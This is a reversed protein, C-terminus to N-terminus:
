RRYAIGVGLASWGPFHPNSDADVDQAPLGGTINHRYDVYLALKNRGDASASTSASGRPDGLSCSDSCAGAYDV